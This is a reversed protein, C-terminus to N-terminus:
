VRTVYSRGEGGGKRGLADVEIQIAEKLKGVVEPQGGFARELMEDLERELKEVNRSGLGTRGSRADSLLGAWRKTFAVISQRLLADLQEGADDAAPTQSSAPVAHGLVPTGGGGAGAAPTNSGSRGGWLSSGPIYTTLTSGFSSLFGGILHTPAGRVTEWIQSFHQMGGLGLGGVTSSPAHATARVDGIELTMLENKLILLNKVMFLDPDTGQPKTSRIRSEARQLSAITEKIIKFLVPSSRQCREKPMSQDFLVLLELAKKVHPFANSSIDGDTIPGIKLAEQPVPAKTITKTIEAEFLGDTFAWLHEELLRAALGRSRGTLSMEEEDYEALLYEHMIWGVLNCVTRLDSGQLVAQLNSAIPAVNAGTLVMRPSKLVVFASDPDTSYHADLSFIAQFLSAENDAREFCQKVFNRAATEVSEKAEARFVDLDHQIIPKLDRERAAYYSRFLNSATNAYTAAHPSSSLPQGYPDYANRVVTQVNPILSYSDLLMEEFRGYALAHRASESQTAAIQRSIENSVKTLHNVFGVELLHLAKTLLSQYRALYSEADRYSSNKTMFDICSNLTTLIESFSGGEVLRGAGPANLRRTASDLYTYYQLDTGVAEALAQLHQQEQLLGDCQAQFSTTQEDVANFSKCLSELVALASNADQILSDLHRETLALEDYYLLYEQQSARLLEKQLADDYPEPEPPLRATVSDPADLAEWSRGTQKKKIRKRPGHSTTQAKAIDYLDSYSMARRTVTPEPPSDDDQLEIIPPLPEAADADDAATSPQELLSQRRRHGTSQTTSAPQRQQLEPVFSYWSDEYM